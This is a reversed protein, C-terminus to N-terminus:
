LLENRAYSKRAQSAARALSLSKRYLEGAAESDGRSLHVDGLHIYCAAMGALDGLREKKKLLQRYRREEKQSLAPSDLESDTGGIDSRLRLSDLDLLATTPQGFGDDQRLFSGGEAEVRGQTAM